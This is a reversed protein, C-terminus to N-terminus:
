QAVPSVTPWFTGMSTKLMRQQEVAIAPKTTTKVGLQTMADAVVGLAKRLVEVAANKDEEAIAQVQTVIRQAARTVARGARAELGISDGKDDAPTMAAVAGKTAQTVNLRLVNGGKRIFKRLTSAASRAFNSRRNRELARRNAEDTTLNARAEVEPSLVAQLVVDYLEKHQAEFAAIHAETDEPTLKDVKDRARLTPKGCIAKQTRALLIRFYCGHTKSVTQQAGLYFAALQGVTDTDALYNAREIQKFIDM